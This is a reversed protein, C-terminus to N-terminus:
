ARPSTTLSRWRARRSRPLSRHRRRATSRSSGSSRSSGRHSRPSRSSRTMSSTSARSSVGSSRSWTTRHRRGQPHVGRGGGQHRRVPRGRGGDPRARHNRDLAARAQDAVDDRHRRAGAPLHDMLIIDPSTELARDIASRSDEAEAVIEFDPEQGLINAIGVRFLAHDDVILIRTPRTSGTTRGAGVATPDATTWPM